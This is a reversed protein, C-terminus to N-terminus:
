RKITLEIIIRPVSGPHRHAHAQWDYDADWGVGNYLVFAGRSVVLQECPVPPPQHGPPRNPYWLRCHGPPPYHGPPVHLQRPGPIAVSPATVIVPGACATLISGFAIMLAWIATGRM